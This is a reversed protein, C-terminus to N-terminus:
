NEGIPNQLQKAIKCLEDYDILINLASLLANASMHSPFDLRKILKQRLQASNDRGCFGLDYLDTKTIKRLSDDNAPKGGDILGAREFAAAIVDNPVGEVGLLGEKSPQTKRKEKGLLEPIYVHTICEAPVMGCLKSRILFGASDSDTLIVIGRKEAIKRIMQRKQKDNFIGFGDTTIIPADVVTELRIKDYKGEVIIAQNIKIM